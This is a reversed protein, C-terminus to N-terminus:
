QAAEGESLVPLTVPRGSASALAFQDRLTRQVLLRLAQEVGADDTGTVVWTPVQEEFRTAAVLGAGAGLRRQVRGSEDLLMLEASDRDGVFRAFVGSERPGEEILRAAADERVQPWEGVVLRLVDKGAAAGIATTSAPVGDADLRDAVRECADAADQACDIRVPYRKGDAGHLFPEPYSGVVAPVRMAASWDRYDWWVRDSPELRKAAAGVDEEIGNVFYFWDRRSSGSSSSRLGEIATVFRGGYRTDVDSNRQLIRMATEGSPLEKESARLVLEHGFNRTVTLTAGAGENEPGLTCGSCVTIAILLAALMRRM